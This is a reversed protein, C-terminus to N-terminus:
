LFILDHHSASRFPTLRNCFENGKLSANDIKIHNSNDCWSTLSRNSLGLCHILKVDHYPLFFVLNNEWAWWPTKLFSLHFFIHFRKDWVLLSRSMSSYEFWILKNWMHLNNSQFRRECSWKGSYNNKILILAKRGVQLKLQINRMCRSDLITHSNLFFIVKRTRSSEHIKRAEVILLSRARISRQRSIM